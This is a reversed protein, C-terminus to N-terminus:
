QRRTSVISCEDGIARSGSPGRELSFLLTDAANSLTGPEFGPQPMQSKEMEALAENGM